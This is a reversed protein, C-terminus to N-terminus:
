KDRGKLTFNVKKWNGNDTEFTLSYDGPQLETTASSFMISYDPQDLMGINVPDLHNTVDYRFVSIKTESPKTISVEIKEGVDLVSPSTLKVDIFENSPVREKESLSFFYHNEIESVKFEIDFQNKLFDENLDRILHILCKQQKCELSDYGTYFDSVLVGKFDELLDKLFDPERTERFEYYVSDYNAFVWVYGDIGKIRGMTEDIHILESKTIESIIEKYTSVYKRAVIEKFRTMQTTSVEIKLSDRLFDIINVSSQKYQIKQNVSWIMLNHGYMPLRKMDTPYSKMKCNNCLSVGGYYLIAQKKIGQKMFVMDIQLKESTYIKVLDKSRCYPCRILSLNVKKDPKNYLKSNRKQKKIARQVKKETRLFIHERQYDYYAKSNIEEFEKVTYNTVGWKFIHESKLNSTLQKYNERKDVTAIWDKVVMLARCDELNYTILKNKLENSNSTEWYYRWVTCQLGSADKETWEFKLFRAIEKLSNSYTPPYICDSFINLVNFSKDIMTKLFEQQETTLKQSIRKLAQIEYSGYHYIAFRNLPKLLHILEIFIGTEEEENNAWFSYETVVENTKLIAGILYNSGRDLIGEFDLYVETEIQILIPIEQIFTKGERIALAKLEPLFKRKRYPNKKPRFTYSLQKVSFIGRNNKQLIEKPKLATLLSLDDREILKELCINQFECIQCHTNKFFIPANSNALIKNVERTLKKISKTLSSFKIKTQRSNTGFVIICNDIQINFENKIFTAQLWIFLKDATTVKEFPTIFIPIINKKGTFEVGDLTIDINANAFKINLSIGEKHAPNDSNHNYGVFSKKKSIIREFNEKGKQRLQNYLIQYESIIGFQNKSKRYAKYHCNIFDNLIENNIQM